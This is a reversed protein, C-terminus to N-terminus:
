RVPRTSGSQGLGLRALHAPLRDLFDDYDDATGWAVEAFACLRPFAQRLVDDPTPLYETWLQAQVGLVSGAAGAPADPVFAYANELPLIRDPSFPGDEDHTPYDFYTRLHPALVVDHGAIAAAAGSEEDLWTMALAGVPGDAKEYWYAARRGRSEVHAALQATFWARAAGPGDIGLEAIRDLARPSAAWEDALCEDGGLHVYPSPFLDVVEDIVHRFFDVTGEELNLTHTSIGWGSWVEVPSGPANGLEPYAALAAQVHGPLNIEPVVTVGRDAAHRVIERIDARTYHAGSVETLRPYREIELRWGQDDTLHLQLVNLKHEALLDLLRLVFEKPMFSRATDLMVGRWAFRPADDVAGLPVAGLARLTTRGHREGADGAVTLVVADPTVALRYGEPEIGEDYRVVLREPDYEVFGGGTDM